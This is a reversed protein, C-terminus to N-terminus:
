PARRRTTDGLGPPVASLRPMRVVEDCSPGDSVTGTHPGTPELSGRPPAVWTYETRGSTWGASCRRYAGVAFTARVTDGRRTVAPTTLVLVYPDAPRPARARLLRTLARHADDWAGVTDGHFLVWPTPATDLLAAGVHEHLARVLGGVVTRRIEPDTALAPSRYQAHGAGPGLLM